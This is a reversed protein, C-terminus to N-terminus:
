FLSLFILINRFLFHRLKVLLIWDVIAPIAVPRHKITCIIQVIIQVYNTIIWCIDAKSQWPASTTQWNWILSYCPLLKMTKWLIILWLKKQDTPFM